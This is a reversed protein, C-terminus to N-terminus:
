RRVPPMSCVVEGFFRALDVIERIPHSAGEARKEFIYREVEFTDSYRSLLSKLTTGDKSTTPQRFSDTLHTKVDDPLNEFLVDLDHDRTNSKSTVASAGAGMEDCLNHMVWHSDLSKIFLEIAFAANCKLASPAVVYPVHKLLLEATALFQKAQCVIQSDPIEAEHNM